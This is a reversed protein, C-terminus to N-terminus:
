KKRRADALTAGFTTMLILWLSLAGAILSMAALAANTISTVLQEM